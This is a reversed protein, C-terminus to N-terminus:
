LAHLAIRDFVTWHRRTNKHTDFFTDYYTDFCTDSESVSTDIEDIRIMHHYSLFAM